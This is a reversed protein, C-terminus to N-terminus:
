FNLDCEAQLHSKSLLYQSNTQRCIVVLVILGTTNSSPEPLKYNFVQHISIIARSLVNDQIDVAGGWHWKKEYTAFLSQALANFSINVARSSQSRPM